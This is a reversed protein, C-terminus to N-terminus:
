VTGSGAATNWKDKLPAFSWFDEERFREQKKMFELIREEGEYYIAEADPWERLLRSLKVAGMGRISSLWLWYIEREM